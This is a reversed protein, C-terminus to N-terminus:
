LKISLATILGIVGLYLLSGRELQNPSLKRIIFTGVALGILLAPSLMLLNGFEFGGFAGRVALAALSIVGNLFVYMAITTRHELPSLERCSLFWIIPLSSLGTSTSFIGGLIGVLAVTLRSKPLQMRIGLFRSIVFLL